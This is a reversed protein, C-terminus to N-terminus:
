KKEEATKKEPATSFNNLGATVYDATAKVADFAAGPIPAGFKNMASIVTRSAAKVESSKKGDEEKESSKATAAFGSELARLASEAGKKLDKIAREYQGLSTLVTKAQTLLSGMEQQSPASATEVKKQVEVINVRSAAGEEGGEIVISRGRSLHGYAAKGDDKGGEGLSIIDRKVEENFKNVWDGTANFGGVTGSIKTGAALLATATKLIAAATAPDAKGNIRIQNAGGKVTDAKKKASSPIAKVKSELNNLHKEMLARNRLLGAVFNQVMALAAKLARKITEIVNKVSEGLAELTVQTAHARSQASRYNEFTMVPKNSRGSAVSLGISSMISEHAIELTKAADETLGGEKMADEAVEALDEVRDVAEFAGDIGTDVNDLAGADEVIEANGEAVDTATEAADLADETAGLAGSESLNEFTTVLNGLKAM